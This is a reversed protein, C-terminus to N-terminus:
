SQGGAKRVLLVMTLFISTLVLMMTAAVAVTPDIQQIMSNYLQVPLTRVAPSVLFIAVVVEDFSTIFAFVAATAVAPLILPLTVLRFTAAPGAGCIAAADEVRRDFQALASGVTIVVLPIALVTHAVVFGVFSGVLNWKLFVAYTGVGTIVVPVIMPAILLAQVFRKGPFQGRVIGYSAATGLVTALISSITAVQLSTLASALWETNQFFGEYWRLSWSPPPFRFSRAGTFSIPVVVFMPAVLWLAVVAGFFSLLPSVRNSEM